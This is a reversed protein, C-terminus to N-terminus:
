VAGGAAPATTKMRWYTLMAALVMPVVGAAIFVVDGPMRGWEILRTLDRNLYDLGRAHWYGNQLVDYVQLVGGPFLSGAAMMALGINLGWFSIRILRQPGAWQEDTLVQRFCLVMLALAEMGFVGMLAMHGHNPTLLTGVEFYSVIPLNILFGFIGAGVFNWFGVAMLFYFAWKHPINVQRGCVDCHSRTLKVFDWADLTLLTLPVVEMASFLASLSMNLNSQGSFYWHHGTGVIGSGLFLIADLYIVRAATTRSVMGLRFFTVAVMVTVFLEFFGEVWLHIIWFRWNDVVTFNTTAGFFFAPLYFVPIALAALLFLTTIERRNPDLLAPMVSRLLMLVWGILGIALLIQWGRGLDLYEWGQHGFWFWLDGLWQRLGALEGFLSGAVVLVLAWFLGHVLGAQGRPEKDGLAQGLLLGGAVFSTAIWFIASQLHWTRLLNSPLITTLDFGYFSGPDARFHATAGGVMVQFLFLLAAALFYKVLGRQGPTAVGPLMQPHVHEGTGKWGLYDFKGFASLVLAIGTLLTILSLASWLVTQSTPTNGLAPDYPFNNTYSFDQDPRNAISAWATWAFFATLDHLEKADSIYKAPLGGSAASDTFYGTWAAIQQRFAQAEFPTLRLTKAKEDYRNEKLLLSVEKGLIEREQPSLAEFDRGFRQPALGRSVSLGLEHLYQASFDPGLYAGHGWISGNEMLGYKLFIQQGAVIDAGTFVVQGSGDRVSDPVPPANRYSQFAILIELAFGIVLAAVVGKRWWPSLSTESTGDSPM